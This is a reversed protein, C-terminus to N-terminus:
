ATGLYEDLASTLQDVHMQLLAAVAGPELGTAGGLFEGFSQKYQGLEDLAAERKDTDDTATGVTFDVFMRIHDRWQKLFAKRAEGGYVSGVADALDVSNEDLAGAISEFDSAGDAGKQMAFVALIAHEARLRDLTVRLGIAPTDTKGMDQQEAIAGALADGTDYMHHYATRLQEYTEDHDGAAYTDLATSLQDVHAQLASAVADAPLGTAKGLFRAFSEKYQGLEKLAKERGAEDNGATAVTFDVFMRIHDRWQKLFASRAEDGYVSGITDALDVSNGDLASAIADFDNSGDYGKQMALAALVAHEALLRDLGVRLDSAPTDVKGLDQQAAIATALGDGTEFMHAYAERVSDYARGFDATAPPTSAGAKDGEGTSDSACAGGIAIVMLMAISRMRANRLM